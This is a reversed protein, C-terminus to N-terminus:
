LLLVLLELLELEHEIVFDFFQLLLDLRALDFNHLHLLLDLLHVLLELAVVFVVRGELECDRPELELEVAHLAFDERLAGLQALRLGLRLHHAGLQVLRRLVNLVGFRELVGDLGHVLPVDGVRESRGAHLRVDRGLVCALSLIEFLRHVREPALEVLVHLEVAGVIVAHHLFVDREDLLDILQPALDFAHLERLASLGDRPGFRGALVAIAHLRAHANAAGVFAVEIGQLIREPFHVSGTQLVGAGPLLQRAHVRNRLMLKPEIAKSPHMQTPHM